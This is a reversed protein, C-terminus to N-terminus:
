KREIINILCEKIEDRLDKIDKRLEKFEDKIEVVANDLRNIENEFAETLEKRRERTHKLETEITYLNTTISNLREKHFECNAMSKEKDKDKREYFRTLFLGFVVGIITALGGQILNTLDM